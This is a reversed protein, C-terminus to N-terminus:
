FGFTKTSHECWSGLRWDKSNFSNKENEEELWTPTDKQLSQKIPNHGEASKIFSEM